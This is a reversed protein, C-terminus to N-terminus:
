SARGDSSCRSSAGSLPLAYNRRQLATDFLLVVLVTIGTLPYIVGFGRRSRGPKREEARRNELPM